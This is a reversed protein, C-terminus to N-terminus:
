HTRQKIKDFEAEYGEFETGMLKDWITFHVAYNGKFKSHHMNHHTSTTLYRLWTKNWWKPYLEYGLHAKINNLLGYVQALAFVPLYTPIFYAVPIIWFTSIIPEVFHFSMTTYPNVDTSKHHELHIYNFIKPHHLLRHTWYFWTDDLLLIIFFGAISFFTHDNFNTYIKTQGKSHLFMVISSMVVGVIATFFANKIERRVQENSIREKLQIRFKRFRERFFKHFILYAITMATGNMLVVKAIGQPFNDVITQFLEKM